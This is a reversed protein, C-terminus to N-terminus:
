FLYFLYIFLLFLSLFCLFVHVQLHGVHRCLLLMWLQYPIHWIYPFNLMHPGFYSLLLHWHRAELRFITPAKTRGDAMAVSRCGDPGNSAGISSQATIRVSSRTSERETSSPIQRGKSTHCSDQGFKLPIVLPLHFRWWDNLKELTHNTM